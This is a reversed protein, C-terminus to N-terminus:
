LHNGARVCEVSTKAAGELEITSSKTTVASVM